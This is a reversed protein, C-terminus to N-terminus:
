CQGCESCLNSSMTERDSKVCMHWLVSHSAANVTGDMGQRPSPDCSTNQIFGTQQFTPSNRLLIKCVM